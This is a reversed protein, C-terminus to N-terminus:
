HDLRTVPRHTSQLLWLRHRARTMAVYLRNRELFAMNNPSPAPFRGPELFPLAVCDFEQGKAQEISLLQFDFGKGAKAAKEHRQVMAAVHALVEPVTMGEIAHMWAQVRAQLHARDPTPLSTSAFLGWIDAQELLACADSQLHLPLRLFNGFAAFNRQGGQLNTEGILFRWIAQPHAHMQSAMTALDTDPQSADLRGKGFYLAGDVFAQLIPQGLICTTSKWDTAQMGHAYLLGLLLAIERHLYFAQLGQFQVTKGAQHIAWELATAEHAHRLIITLPIHPGQPPRVMSRQAQLLQAICHADDNYHVEYVTSRRTGPAKMQVDFWRNVAQAIQPGFRRSQTLPLSRTPHPLFDSLQHLKDQFVSWAQAEIHQNFDGAGLFRAKSAQLIHRLVTLSALDMDHMEDFLVLDYPAHLNEGTEQALAYTCDGQAYYRMDGCDDIRQREYAKFLRALSYDLLYTDCFDALDWNEDELRQLMLARKAASNFNWFAQMDWEAPVELREDPQRQLQEDLELIAQQAYSRLEVPHTVFRVAPDRQRLQRACWREMTTIHMNAPLFRLLSHLRQKFAEVGSRSYALVLIRTTPQARVAQVAACALTTTKGTGALAAIIASHGPDQLIAQQESSLMLPRGHDGGFANSAQM